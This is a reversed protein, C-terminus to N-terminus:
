DEKYNNIDFPNTNLPAELGDYLPAFDNIALVAAKLIKRAREVDEYEHEVTVVFATYREAMGM